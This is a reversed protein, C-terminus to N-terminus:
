KTINMYKGSTDLSWQKVQQYEKIQIKIFCWRWWTWLKLILATTDQITLILNFSKIRQIFKMPMAEMSCILVVFYFTFFLELHFYIANQLYNIALKLILLKLLLMAQHVVDKFYTNLFILKLPLDLIELLWRNQIELLESWSTKQNSTEICLKFNNWHKLDRLYTMCLLNSKRKLLILM